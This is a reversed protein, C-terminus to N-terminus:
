RAFVALTEQRIVEAHADVAAYFVDIDVGTPRVLPQHRPREHGVRAADYCTNCAYLGGPLAVASLDGNHIDAGPDTARIGCGACTIGATAPVPNRPPM